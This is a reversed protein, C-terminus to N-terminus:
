NGFGNVIWCTQSAVTPASRRWRIVLRVEFGWRELIEYVLIWYVETAEMAVQQVGCDRLWRALKKLVEAYIGFTRVNTEAAEEAVAVYLEKKGVDIGASHPYRVTLPAERRREKKM